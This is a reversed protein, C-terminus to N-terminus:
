PCSALRKAEREVLRLREFPVSSIIETIDRCTFGFQILNNPNYDDEEVLYAVVRIVPGPGRSSINAISKMDIEFTDGNEVRFAQWDPRFFKRGRWDIYGDQWRTPEAVRFPTPGIIETDIALQGNTKMPVLFLGLILLINRSKM